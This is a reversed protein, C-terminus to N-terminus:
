EAAKPKPGSGRINVLKTLAAFWYPAGLVGALATLAWGLVHLLWASITWNEITSQMETACHSWISAYKSPTATLANNATRNSELTGSDLCGYGIPLKTLSRSLAADLVMKSEEPTLDRTSLDSLDVGGVKKSHVVTDATELVEARLDASRNLARYIEVTDINGLCAVLLGIVFLRKQAYSKYWGSVRDMGSSYWSEIGKLAVDLSGEARDIIPLAATAVLSRQAALHVMAERLKLFDLVQVTGSFNLTPDTTSSTSTPPNARRTIVSAFALAFNKPEIYSPPKGRAARDRYLGGILPHQIVRLFVAEDGILRLLGERLFMGRHGRYQSWWEQIGSVVIAFLLYVLILGSLVDFVKMM